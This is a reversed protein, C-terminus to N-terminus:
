SGTLVISTAVARQTPNAPTSDSPHGVNIGNVTMASSGGGDLNIASSAGIWQMLAATEQMSAGIALGPQKGDTEVLLITGDPAVGIMTRANRMNIFRWYVSSRDVGAFTPSWGDAVSRQIVNAAPILEPGAAALSMGPTLSVPNTGSLLQKQVSLVSGIPANKQLWTVSAGLGQLVYGGTPAPAGM